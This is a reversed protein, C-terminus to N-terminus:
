YPDPRQKSCVRFGSTNLPTHQPGTDFGDRSPLPRRSDYGLSSLSRTALPPIRRIWYYEQQFLVITIKSLYDM